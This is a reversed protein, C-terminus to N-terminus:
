PKITPIKEKDIQKDSNRLSSGVQTSSTGCESGNRGALFELFKSGAFTRAPQKLDRVAATGSKIVCAHDAPFRHRVCTAKNCSKCTMKNSFTLLEHCGKVPCKPKKMVKAYNNPDCNATQSHKEMTLNPDEGFVTKVTAACIPCILVTSDKVTAKSCNHSKYSRHELCFIKSCADCKFPLFDLQHCLEESCHKGLDPFAETGGM